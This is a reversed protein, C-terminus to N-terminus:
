IKRLIRKRGRRKGYGYHDVIQSLRLPFAWGTREGINYLTESIIKSRRFNSKIDFWKSDFADKLDTLLGRGKLNKRKM